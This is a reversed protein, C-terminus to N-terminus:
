TSFLFFTELVAHDSQAIKLLHQIVFCSNNFHYHDTLSLTARIRLLQMSFILYESFYAKSRQSQETCTGKPKRWLLLMMWYFQLAHPLYHFKLWLEGM